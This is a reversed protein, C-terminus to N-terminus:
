RELELNCDVTHVRNDVKHESSRVVFIGNINVRNDRIPILVGKQIRDDGLMQVDLKTTIRNKERLRNQAIVSYNTENEGPEIIEQLLGFRNINENDQQLTQLRSNENDGTYVLIQNKMEQMSTAVKVNGLNDASNIQINNSLDGLIDQLLVYPRINVSGNRCDVTYNIGTQGTALTLLDSLVVQVTQKRYVKNVTGRVGEITGIPINVSALLRRIANEIAGQLQITVENKGLYFGFDYATYQYILDRDFDVDTIVCRLLQNNGNNLVFQRGVDLPIQSNFKVITTYTEIDDSWTLAGFNDIREDGKTLFYDLM